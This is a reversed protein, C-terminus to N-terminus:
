TNCKRSYFHNWAFKKIEKITIPTFFTFRRKGGIKQETWKGESSISYSNPLDQNNLLDNRKRFNRKFIKQRIHRNMM